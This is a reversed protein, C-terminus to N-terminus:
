IIFQLYIMIGYAKQGNQKIHHQGRKRIAGVVVQGNENPKKFFICHSLFSWSEKNSPDM